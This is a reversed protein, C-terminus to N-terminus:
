GQAFAHRPATLSFLLLAAMAALVHPRLHKM